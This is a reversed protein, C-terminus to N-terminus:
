CSAGYRAGFTACDSHEVGSVGLENVGLGPSRM